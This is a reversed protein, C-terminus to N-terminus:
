GQGNDQFAKCVIDLRFALSMAKPLKGLAALLAKKKHSPLSVIKTSLPGTPQELLGLLEDILCYLPSNSYKGGPMLAIM